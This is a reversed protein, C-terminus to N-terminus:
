LDDDEHFRDEEPVDKFYLWIMLGIFVFVLINLVKDTLDIM